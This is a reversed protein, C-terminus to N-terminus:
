EAPIILQRFPLYDDAPDVRRWIGSRNGRTMKELQISGTSGAAAFVAAGDSAVSNFPEDSESVWVPQITDKRYAVIRGNVGLGLDQSYIYADDIAVRPITPSGLGGLTLIGGDGVALAAIRQAGGSRGVLLLGRGDVAMQGWTSPPNPYAQDWATDTTDLGTGGENAADFGNSAILARVTSASGHSSAAGGVFVRRGDTACSELSAGHDYDWASTGASGGELIIARAHHTGTGADGALYVHTGDMCIDNVTAGHDYSWLAAGGVDHDYLYVLNGAAVAVFKGDTIVRTAPGPPPTLASAPIATTLDARDVVNIDFSGGLDAYVVSLGSVDASSWTNAGSAIGILQEGPFTAADHENIVCTDGVDLTDVADELAEFRSASQSFHDLWLYVANWFWNMWEHPVPQKFAWGNQRQNGDPTEIEAGPDTAWDPLPVTPRTSM